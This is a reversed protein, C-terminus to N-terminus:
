GIKNLTSRMQLCFTSMIVHRYVAQEDPDSEFIGMKKFTGDMDWYRLLTLISEDMVNIDSLDSAM